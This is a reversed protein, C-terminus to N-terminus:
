GAKRGVLVYLGGDEARGVWGLQRAWHEWSVGRVGPGGFSIDPIARVFSVGAADMWGLTEGVWHRSEHPHLHQDHFWALGRRSTDQAHRRRLFPLLLRGTVSYLGVVVLGGPKVANVLARFGGEPDATHHLVGSSLGVDVSEPRVPPRFLNGRALRVNRLGIRARFREAVRLSALSLDVGLVPRGAVGLFLSMQGTGCGLELVSARPPITEDLWRTFGNARGRRLLEGRDDEDRWDPFPREEYFARVTTTTAADSAEVFLDPVGDEATPWPHACGPVEGGCVPCALM